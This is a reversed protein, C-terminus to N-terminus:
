CEGIIRGLGQEPIEVQFSRHTLHIDVDGCTRKGRRYSGQITVEIGPFVRQAAKEVTDKIREVEGRSMRSLIDEYCDVGVLQNRDLVMKSIGHHDSQLGKRVDYIDNYGLAMLEKAKVRGVGWIATLNKMAVRNPDHQFEQLRSVTGTYLIEEIKEVVSKGFGKIGRLRSLTTPDTDVEFDLHLLRGSVIRFCYSKWQDMDLLPMDQHLNSLQKFVEACKVNRPFPKRSSVVVTTLRANKTVPEDNLSHNNGRKRIPPSSPPRFHPWLHKRGPPVVLHNSSICEDVWSPLLCQVDKHQHQQQELHKQLKSDLVKCHKAMITLSRVSGSVIIYQADWINQVFVAGLMELKQRLILRRHEYFDHGSPVFFLKPSLQPDITQNQEAENSLNDLDRSTSDDKRTSSTISWKQNHSAVDKITELPSSQHQISAQDQQKPQNNSTENQYAHVFQILVVIFEMCGKGSRPSIRLVDNKHLHIPPHSWDDDDDHHEEDSSRGVVTQGNVSVVAHKGRIQMTTGKNRFLFMRRSLAYSAWYCTDQCAQCHKTSITPVIRTTTKNNDKINLENPQPKLCQTAQPHHINNNDQVACGCSILLASLLQRRGIIVTEEDQITRTTTTDTSAKGLLVISNSKNCFVVRAADNNLLNKKDDFDVTETEGVNNKTGSSTNEKSDLIPRLGLCDFSM